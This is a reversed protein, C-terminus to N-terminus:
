RRSTAHRALFDVVLPLVEEPARRGLVLDGHGYDASFGQEVGVTVQEVPGRVRATAAHADAPPVLLDAAGAITLLPAAVAVLRARYDFGDDGDFVDREVWRALQRALGGPVDVMAWALAQRIVRAEVNDRNLLYPGVPWPPLGWPVALRAPWVLPLADLRLLPGLLELFRRVGPSSFTTPAGLTVVAAIPAEPFRGLHALALLGGRSHGVWLVREAGTARVARLAATVDHLVEVDFSSGAPSGCLGHGRTELVWAEFGRRALGRAVSLREDFDLDFRNIGLSHALVVPEAFRRPGRPHYRGLAVANGDDTPVEHLEDPAFRLPPALHELAALSWRTATRLGQAPVGTTLDSAKM